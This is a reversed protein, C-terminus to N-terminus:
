CFVAEVTSSAGTWVAETSRAIAEAQGREEAGVGPYAGATDVLTIVPLRFKDAMEMIRIAKRYGEPRAMGFNHKIRSATDHGKEHGIIAVSRGKFRGIGTQIAADESYGRDGALPTFDEILTSVYDRFHPRDPHRAIQTKQWPTLRQYIDSLAQEAKSELRAIEDEVNVATDERQMARLEHVKGELDAVPKEFDLYTRM